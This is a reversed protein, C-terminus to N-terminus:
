NHDFNSPKSDLYINVYWWLSRAPYSRLDSAGKLRSMGDICLLEGQEFKLFIEKEEWEKMDDESIKSTRLAKLFASHSVKVVPKNRRDNAESPDNNYAAKWRDANSQIFSKKKSPLFDILHVEVKAIGCFGKQGLM